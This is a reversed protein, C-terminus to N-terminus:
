FSAPDLRLPRETARFYGVNRCRTRGVRWTSAQPQHVDGFLHLRPAHRELYRLIPISGREARGTVVDTRLPGLAPPVHTCLIDVPGIDGLLQEVVEESVEGEAQLPTAAGGGVFGFRLGEIERTEGHLYEYSPPLLRQLSGPRDVNGHIVYGHGGDLAEAVREYQADIANGIELRIEDIQDGVREVWLSRMQQFDGQGRASAAARSFELGLVEAVAGEGTRYDTLNVLDGLILLTEGTAAVRRLPELAFHIDSLALM